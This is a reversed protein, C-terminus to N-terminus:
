QPSVVIVVRRNKARGAASENSALPKYAGWGAAYTRKPDVGKSNLFRVVAMARNCSLDLNDQWYKRTKAIPTSDTHGEVRIKATAYDKNLVAAVHGLVKKSEAKLDVKGSAFLVTEPLTVHLSEGVMATEVGEGFEPKPRQGKIPGKEPGQGALRARAKELETNLALNQEKLTENQAQLDANQQLTQELQKSLAVNREELQQQGCGAVLAGALGIVAVLIWRNVGDM